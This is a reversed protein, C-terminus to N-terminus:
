VTRTTAPLRKTVAYSLWNKRKMPGPGVSCILHFSFFTISQVVVFLIHNSLSDLNSRTPKKIGISLYRNISILCGKSGRLISMYNCKRDIM